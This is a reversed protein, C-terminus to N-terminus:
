SHHHEATPDHQVPAVDTHLTALDLESNGHNQWYHVLEMGALMAVFFGIAGASGSMLNILAPGPCIGALGWGIGFIAAGSVLKRDIRRNTPIQLPEHNLAQRRNKVLIQYGPIFIFLAGGMVFLLSPDWTGTINLFGLVKHPDIMGSLTLGAGFLLGSLLAIM